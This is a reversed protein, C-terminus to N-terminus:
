ALTDRNQRLYVAGLKSQTQYGYHNPGLMSRFRKQLNRDEATETWKDDLRDLMEITVDRIEEPTNEVISLGRREYLEHMRYDGIESGLIEAFSLRTGTEDLITKPISIDDPGMGFCAGIPIMNVLVSPVQFLTSVLCLGSTNGLFFRANACLFVDMWDSKFPSTAYDIVNPTPPMPTMSADGMRICWGGRRAIEQVALVVSDISSNRHGHVYEDKPSYGGERAHVAVYWTNKPLGLDELVARGARATEQSLSVLPARGGWRELVRPYDTAGQVMAVSQGLDLTISQFFTLPRLIWRLVPQEVLVLYRAWLDLLASNAARDRSLLLVPRYRPLDGLEVKKLYWDLEAALHGIRNPNSIHLFRISTKALLWALPAYVIKVFRRKGLRFAQSFRRRRTLRRERDQQLYATNVDVNPTADSSGKDSRM